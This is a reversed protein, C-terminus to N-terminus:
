KHLKHNLEVSWRNLNVPGNKYGFCVLQSADVSGNDQTVPDRNNRLAFLARQPLM